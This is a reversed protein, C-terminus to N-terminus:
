AENSRQTKREASQSKLAKTEWLITSLSSIFVTRYISRYLQAPKLIYVYICSPMYQFTHLMFNYRTHNLTYPHM